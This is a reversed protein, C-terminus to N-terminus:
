EVRYCVVDEPREIDWAYLTGDEALVLMPENGIREPLAARVTASMRATTTSTLHWITFCLVSPSEVYYLLLLDRAACFGIDIEHDRTYVFGNVRPLLFKKECWMGERWGVCIFEITTYPTKGDEFWQDFLVAEVRHTLLSFHLVYQDDEFFYTTPCTQLVAGQMWLPTFGVDEELVWGHGEKGDGWIEAGDPLVVGHVPSMPQKSQEVLVVAPPQECPVFMAEETANWDLCYALRVQRLTKARFGAIRENSWRACVDKSITEKSVEFLRRCVRRFRAWDEIKLFLSVEVLLEDPL